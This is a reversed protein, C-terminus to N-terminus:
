APRTLWIAARAPTAANTSSWGMAGSEGSGWASSRATSVSLLIQWVCAPTATTPSEAPPPRARAAVARATRSPSSIAATAVKEGHVSGAEVPGADM